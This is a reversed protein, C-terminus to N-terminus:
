SSLHRVFILDWVEHGLKKGRSEFKTLPRENPREVFSHPGATNSFPECDELVRLMQQAYDEWDTAAHFLGGPKMKEAILSMFAPNIIRRKHHRKKPWPDPFFVNVGSLSGSPIQKQLIEVADGCLVRLNNLGLEKIKLLLHGVGPRHVEIGLYDNEPHEAAMQALTEGNGFGIEVMLPAERGFVHAADFIDNLPLGYIPWLTELANRQAETMRGQRLVYSRTPRRREVQFDTRYESSFNADLDLSSNMNLSFNPVPLKNMPPLDSPGLNPGPGQSPRVVTKWTTSFLLDTVSVAHPPSSLGGGWGM